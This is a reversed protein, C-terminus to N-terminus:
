VTGQSCTTKFTMDKKVYGKGDKGKGEFFNENNTLENKIYYYKDIRNQQHIAIYSIIYARIGFCKNTIQLVRGDKGPEEQM